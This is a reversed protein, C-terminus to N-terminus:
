SFNLGHKEKRNQAAYWDEVNFDVMCELLSFIRQFIYNIM